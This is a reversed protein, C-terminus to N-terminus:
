HKLGSTKGAYLGRECGIALVFFLLAKSHLTVIGWSQKIFIVYM